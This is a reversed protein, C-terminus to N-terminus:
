PFLHCHLACASVNIVIKDVDHQPYDNVKGLHQSFTRLVCRSLGPKGVCESRFSFTGDSELLLMLSRLNNCELLM